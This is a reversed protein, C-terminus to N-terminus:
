RGYLKAQRPLPADNGEGSSFVARPICSTILLFLYPPQRALRFFLPLPSFPTPLLRLILYQKPFTPPPWPYWVLKNLIKFDHTERHTYLCACVITCPYLDCSDTRVMRRTPTIELCRVRPLQDMLMGQNGEGRGMVM